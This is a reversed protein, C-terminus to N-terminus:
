FECQEIRRYMEEYTTLVALAGSAKAAQYGPLSDEYIVTEEPTAGLKQMGLLYIEPSPKPTKVHEQHLLVDLVQHLGLMEIMAYAGVATSNTCVGLRYGYRSKAALIRASIEPHFKARNALKEAYLENKRRKVQEVIVPDTVGLRSLKEISTIAEPWSVGDAKVGFEAAAQLLTEDHLGETKVLVGDLDFLVTRM